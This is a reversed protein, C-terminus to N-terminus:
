PTPTALPAGSGGPAVCPGAKSIVNVEEFDMLHLFQELSRKAEDASKQMVGGECAAQLIQAGQSAASCAGGRDVVATLDYAPGGGDEGSAGPFLM